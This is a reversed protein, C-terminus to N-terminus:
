NCSIWRWTLLRGVWRLRSSSSRMNMEVFFKPKLSSNSTPSPKSLIVQNPRPTLSRRIPMRSLKWSQNLSRSKNGLSDLRCMKWIKEKKTTKATKFIKYSSDLNMTKTKWSGLRKHTLKRFLNVSSLRIKWIKFSGLNRMNWLKSTSESSRCRTSTFNRKRFSSVKMNTPKTSTTM